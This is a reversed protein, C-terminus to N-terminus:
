HFKITCSWLQKFFLVLCLTVLDTVPGDRLMSASSSFSNGGHMPPTRLSPQFLYWKVQSSRLMYGHVCCRIRYHQLRSEYRLNSLFGTNSTHSCFSLAGACKREKQARRKSRFSELREIPRPKGVDGSDNGHDHPGSRVVGSLKNRPITQLPLTLALCYVM